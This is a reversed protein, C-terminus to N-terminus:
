YRSRFECATEPRKDSFLKGHLSALLIATFVIQGLLMFWPGFFRMVIVDGKSVEARGNFPSADIDDFKKHAYSYFLSILAALFLLERLIISHNIGCIRIVELTNAIWAIFGIIALSYFLNNRLKQM